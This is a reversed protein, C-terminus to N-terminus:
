SIRKSMEDPTLAPMPTEPSNRIAETDERAYSAQAYAAAATGGVGLIALIVIGTQVAQEYQGSFVQNILLGLAAVISAWTKLDRPWHFSGLM